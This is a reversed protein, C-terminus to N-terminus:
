LSKDRGRVWYICVLYLMGFTDVLICFVANKVVHVSIVMYVMGFAGVLVGCIGYWIFSGVYWHIFMMEFVRVLIGFVYIGFVM